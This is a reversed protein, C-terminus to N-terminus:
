PQHSCCYLILYPTLSLSRLSASCWSNIKISSSYLHTLSHSHTLSHTLSQTISIELLAGPDVIGKVSIYKIHTIHLVRHHSTIHHSTNHQTTNHQTTNHQPPSTLHSTILFSCSSPIRPLLHPSTKKLFCLSCCCRTMNCSPLCSM